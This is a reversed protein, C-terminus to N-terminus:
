APPREHFREKGLPRHPDERLALRTARHISPLRLQVRGDPHCVEAGSDPLGWAVLVRCLAYVAGSRSTAEYEVGEVHCSAKWRLGKEKGRTGPLPELTIQIM